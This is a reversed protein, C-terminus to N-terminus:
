QCGPGECVGNVFCFRNSPRGNTKGPCDASCEVTGNRGDCSEGVDCIGNGCDNGGGGLELSCGCPPQGAGSCETGPWSFGTKSVASVLTEYLGDPPNDLACGLRGSSSTEGTCSLSGLPSTPVDITVSAGGAAGGCNDVIFTEVVFDGANPGSSPQSCNTSDVVLTDAVCGGCGAGNHYVCNIGEIDDQALTEGSNNCQSTTAFMTASGVSTHGLGLLHGVEHVAVSEIHMERRCGDPESGSYFKANPNFFIDSDTMLRFDTGNVTEVPTVPPIPTFTVALCSGSCGTGVVNFHLTSISDGISAPPNAEVTTTTLIGPVVTNWSNAIADVIETVGGDGDDVKSHGSQNIAINRPLDGSAWKIPPDILVFAIVFGSTLLLTVLIVAFITTRKM